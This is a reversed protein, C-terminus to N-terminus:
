KLELVFNFESLIEKNSTSTIILYENSLLKLKQAQEATYIKEIFIVEFKQLDIQNIIEDFYLATNKDFEVQSVNNLEYKVNKEIMLVSKNQTLFEALSYAFMNVDRSKDANIAFLGNSSFMDELKKEDFNYESIHKLPKNITLAIRVGAKTPFFSVYIPYKEKEFEFLFKSSQIYDDADVDLNFINKIEFVFRPVILNPIFGKLEKDFFLNLGNNAREMFINDIKNIIADKFIDFVVSSIIEDSLNDTIIKDQWNVTAPVIQKQLYYNNIANIISIESCVVPEISIESDAFLENILFLDLPDSMAITLVDEIKFLPFINYKQANQVSVYELCSVDPNYDNLDVFPIHLKAEIFKLLDAETILSENVLEQALNTSNKKANEQASLLGDLEVLGERVLDHKLKEITKNTLLLM